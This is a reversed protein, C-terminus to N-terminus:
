IDCSRRATSEQQAGMQRTMWPLIWPTHEGYATMGQHERYAADDMVTCYRGKLIIEYLYENEELLIGTKQM